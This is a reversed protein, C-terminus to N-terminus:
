KNIKDETMAEKPDITIGAEALKDAFEKADKGLDYGDKEILLTLESLRGEDGEIVAKNIEESYQQWRYYAAACEPKYDGKSDILFWEIPEYQGHRNCWRYTKGDIEVEKKM